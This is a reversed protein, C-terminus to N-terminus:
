WPVAKNPIRPNHQLLLHIVPALYCHVSLIVVSLELCASSGVMIATQFM